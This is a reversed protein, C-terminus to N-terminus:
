FLSIYRLDISLEKNTAPMIFCSESFKPASMSPLHNNSAGYGEAPVGLFNTNLRGDNNEDHIVAVAYVGPPLHDFQVTLVGKSAPVVASRVANKYDGPFDSANNYLAVTCVGKNNKVNRMTISLSGQALGQLPLWLLISILLSRFMM